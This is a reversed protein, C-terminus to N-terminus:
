GHAVGNAVIGKHSLVRTVGLAALQIIKDREGVTAWNM